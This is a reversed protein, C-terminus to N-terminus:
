QIIVTQQRTDGNIYVKVFFTGKTTLTVPIRVENSFLILKNTQKVLKGNIDYVTVYTIVGTTQPLKVDVNFMSTNTPNPYVLMKLTDNLPAQTVIVPYDLSSAWCTSDFSTSVRYFGVKNINISKTKENVLSDNNFFWQYFNATSSTLISDGISSITPIPPSTVNVVLQQSSGYCSDATLPTVTVTHKGTSNWTITATTDSSVVTGGESVSWENKIGQVKSISYTQTGTCTVADGKISSPKLPDVCFTQYGDPAAAFYVNGKQSAKVTIKGPSNMILVGNQLSANGSVLSFSVTDGSSASATLGFPSDGIVKDPIVPFDIANKYLTASSFNSDVVVPVSISKGNNSIILTDIGTKKAVILGNKQIIIIGGHKTTYLTGTSEDTLNNDIINASDTIFYGHVYLAQERLLSDLHITGPDVRLSNLVDDTTIVIHSTDGLIIGTTDRVMLVINKNGLSANAPLIFTVSSDTSNNLGFWGIDQIMLVSHTPMVGNLTTYKLTISAKSNQNYTSGRVPSVIQVTQNMKGATGNEKEGFSIAKGNDVSSSHNHHIVETATQCDLPQSSPAPFGESFETTDDSLLLQVVKKQILLSNTESNDLGGTKIPGSPILSLHCTGYFTTDNTIFGTQSSLPVILDSPLVSNCRSTFIDDQSKGFITYCLANMALYDSTQSNNVDLYDGTIAYTRFPLTQELANIGKSQIGFDKHVTGIPRGVSSMFFSLTVPLPLDSLSILNNRANWLEPGFPSGRHPTGLTILKHFHGRYYNTNLKYEDQQSLSRSVLGGLSHGVVDVQAVAINQKRYFNLADDIAKLLADRSYFSEDSKPNFTYSSYQSYNAPFYAFQNKDLTNTFGGDFWTSPSSWMGHVLVVPPTVLKIRVSDINTLDNENVTKITIFRGGLPYDNGYGDPVTYIAVIKGNADPQITIPDTRPIQDPLSSLTGNDDGEISFTIDDKSDTVLLLKTVGDTAAINVTKTKGLNSIDTNISGDDAILSPNPDYVNIPSITDSYLTLDTAISNTIEVRYKGPKTPAFTSDGMITIDLEDAGQSEGVRYWTYTNNSLTGGATISFLSDKKHIHLITDQPSYLTSNLSSIIDELGDFTFRNSECHFDQLNSLNTLSTPLPGHFKNIGIYLNKLKSLNGIEEPIEGSLQNYSLQLFELNNLQWLEPPISDTLQNSSLDLIKLNPMDFSPIAGSLNNVQLKMELLNPMNFNPISGEFHNFLLYLYKLNPLKDLPPIPGSLSDYNVDLLILNPLNWNPLGGSFKNFEININELATLSSFDPLTGTLQNQGLLLDKLNPLRFSPISGTFQNVGLWMNQLSPTQSFAPLKGKLKNGQLDLFILNPFNLEPLSGSLNNGGLHIQSVKGSGDLTIGIWNSVPGNLWGSNDTWNDGNTSAYFNILEISDQIDADQAFIKNSTFLTILCFFLYTFISKM